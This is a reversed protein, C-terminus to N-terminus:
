TYNEDKGNEEEEYAVKKAIGDVLFVAGEFYWDQMGDDMQFGINPFNVM